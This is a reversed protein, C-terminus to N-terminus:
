LVNKLLFKMMCETINVNGSFFVNEGKNKLVVADSNAMIKGDYNKFVGFSNSFLFSSLFLLYLSYLFIIRYFLNM